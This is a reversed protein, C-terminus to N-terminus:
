VVAWSGMSEIAHWTLDSLKFVLGLMSGQTSATATGGSASVKGGVELFQGSNAQVVISAGIDVYIIITNGIILAPPGLTSPLLATLAANCFYGNQVAASFSGNQETWRFADTKVNITVTGTPIDGTTAIGIGGAVNLNNALPVVMTGDDTTFQLPVSPPLSGAVAGQFFQSM